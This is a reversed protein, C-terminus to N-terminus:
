TAFFLSGKAEFPFADDKYEDEWMLGFYRKKSELICPWYVKEYKLQIPDDFLKTVEKAM